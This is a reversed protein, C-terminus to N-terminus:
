THRVSDANEVEMFMTALTDTIGRATVRPLLQWKNMEEAICAVLWNPFCSVFWQYLTEAQEESLGTGIAEKRVQRSTGNLEEHDDPPFMKNYLVGRMALDGTHGFRELALPQVIDAMIASVLNAIREKREDSLKDLEALNHKGLDMLPHESSWDPTGSFRTGEMLNTLRKINDM